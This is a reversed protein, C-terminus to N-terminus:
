SSAVQPTKTKAQVQWRATCGISHYREAPFRGQLETTSRTRPLSSAAPEIGAPPESRRDELDIYVDVAVNSSSMRGYSLQISCHVGLGYTPPELGRPRSTKPEV